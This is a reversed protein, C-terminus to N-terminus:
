QVAGEDEGENKKTNPNILTVLLKFKQEHTEYTDDAKIYEVDVPDKFWASAKLRDMYNSVRANSQAFGELSIINGNQKISEIFVGNPITKVLEDFLHIMQTRNAQLEEIVRKRALLNDKSKELDKIEKLQADLVKIASEIRTNRKVQFDINQSYIWFISAVIAVAVAGGVGLLIYFEKTLQQRREERWPLLNIKVM